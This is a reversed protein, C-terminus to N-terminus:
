GQGLLVGEIQAHSGTLLILSSSSDSLGRQFTAVVNNEDIAQRGQPLTCRTVILVREPRFLLQHNGKIWRSIPVSQMWNCNLM